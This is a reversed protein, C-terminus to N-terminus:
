FTMTATLTDGYSGSPVDQGPAIAAYMTATGSHGAGLVVPYTQAGSSGNGWVETYSPDAYINYLLATNGELKRNVFSNSSGASLAIAVSTVVPSGHCSVSITGSGPAPTTAFVNYPSFTVNSVSFTCTAASAVANGFLWLVIVFAALTAYVRKVAQLRAERSRQAALEDARDAAVDNM